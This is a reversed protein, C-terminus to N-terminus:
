FSFFVRYVIPSLFPGASQYLLDYLIMANIASRKGMLVKYGLGVLLRDYTKRPQSADLTTSSIVDYEAQIFLQQIYYRAFPAYGIQSYSYGIDPFNYKTYFINMGLMFDPQVRYGITPFLSFYSYRIGGPNTGSGFNGGGALYIKDWVSSPSSNNGTKISRNFQAFVSVSACLLIFIMATKKM